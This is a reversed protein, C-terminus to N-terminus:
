FHRRAIKYAIGAIFDLYPKNPDNHYDKVKFVRLSYLIGLFGKIDQIANTRQAQQNAVAIAARNM